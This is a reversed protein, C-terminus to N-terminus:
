ALLLHSLDLKDLNCITPTTIQFFYTKKALSWFIAVELENTISSQFLIFTM